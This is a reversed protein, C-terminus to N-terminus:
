QQTLKNHNKKIPKIFLFINIYKTLIKNVRNRWSSQQKFLPKYFLCKMTLHIFAPQIRRMHCILKIQNSIHTFPSYPIPSLVWAISREECKCCFCPKRFPNGSLSLPLDSWMM